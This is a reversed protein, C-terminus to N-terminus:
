DTTVRASGCVHSEERRRRLRKVYTEIQRDSWQATKNHSRCTPVLYNRGNLFDPRLWYELIGKRYPIKHAVTEAAKGCFYCTEGLYSRWGRLYRVLVNFERFVSIQAATLFPSKSERTM